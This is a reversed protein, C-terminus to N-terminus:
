FKWAWWFNGKAFAKYGKISWLFFPTFISKILDAKESEYKLKGIEDRLKMLNLPIIVAAQKLLWNLPSSLSIRSVYSMRFVSLTLQSHLFFYASIVIRNRAQRAGKGMCFAVEKLSVKDKMMEGERWGEM